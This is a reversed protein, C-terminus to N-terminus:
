GIAGGVNGGGILYVTIHFEFYLMLSVRSLCTLVKPRALQFVTTEIQYLGSKHSQFNLGRNLAYVVRVASFGKYM